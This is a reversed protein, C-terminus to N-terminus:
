PLKRGRTNTKGGSLQPSDPLKVGGARHASVDSSSISTRRRDRPTVDVAPDM